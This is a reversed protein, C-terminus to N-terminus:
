KGSLVGGYEFDNPEFLGYLSLDNIRKLTDMDITTFFDLDSFISKIQGVYPDSGSSIDGIYFIPREKFQSILGLAYVSFGLMTNDWFLIGNSSIEYDPKGEAGVVFLTSVYHDSSVLDSYTFPHAEGAKNQKVKRCGSTLRTAELRMGTNPSSTHFDLIRDASAMFATFVDAGDGKGTFAPKYFMSLTEVNPIVDNNNTFTEITEDKYTISYTETGKGSDIPYSMISLNHIQSLMPENYEPMVIYDDPVTAFNLMQMNMKGSNKAAFNVIDAYVYNYTASTLLTNIMSELLTLYASFKIPANPLYHTKLITGEAGTEDILWVSDPAFVYMQSMDTEEDKYVSSFVQACKNFYNINSPFPIKNAQVMLTNFEIRYQALNKFLDDPDFGSLEILRKPMTRNRLNYVWTLGFTRQGWNVMKILEGIALIMTTIDNPLYQTNKSNVSSLRSYMKFGQQNIAATKANIDMGVSGLSPMLGIRMISGINVTYGSNKIDSTGTTGINIAEGIFNAFSFGSAQDATVPDIIYWEPNNDYSESGTIKDEHYDDKGTKAKGKGKSYNRNRNGSTKKNFKTKSNSSDVECKSRRNSPGSKTYTSM